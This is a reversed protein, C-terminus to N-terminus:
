FFSLASGEARWIARFSSTNKLLYHRQHRVAGTYATSPFPEGTMGLYLGSCGGELARQSFRVYGAIALPPGWAAPLEKRLKERPFYIFLFTNINM